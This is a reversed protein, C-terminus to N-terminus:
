DRTSGRTSAARAESPQKLVDQLLQKDLSLGAVFQKLPQDEEELQKLRRLEPVGRGGYKKKWNYWTTESIGMKRCVEAVTVGTDAPRLAFM